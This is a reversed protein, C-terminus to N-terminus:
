GAVLERTDRTSILQRRAVVTDWDRPPQALKEMQRLAVNSIRYDGCYPCHIASIEGNQEVATSDEHFPCKQM